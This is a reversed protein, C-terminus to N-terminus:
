LCWIMGRYSHAVCERSRRRCASANHAMDVSAMKGSTKRLFEDPAMRIGLERMLDMWARVHFPMTDAITDDMDFPFAVREGM